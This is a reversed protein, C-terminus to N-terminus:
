GVTGIALVTVFLLYFGIFLRYVFDAKAVCWTALAIFVCMGVAALWDVVYIPADWLTPTTVGQEYDSVYISSGLWIIQGVAIGILYISRDGKRWRDVIKWIFAAILVAVIAQAALLMSRGTSEFIFHTIPVMPGFALPLVALGAIAM